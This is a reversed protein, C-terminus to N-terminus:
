YDGPKVYPHSWITVQLLLSKVWADHMKEVEEPSNGKKALFPKLTATVPYVLPALYRMPVIEAAKAGDTVNKKTRHHRLGLEWQYDLWAQDYNASATDLIWQGFRKRVATLYAADPKETKKDVFTALLHPNGGIFGYWVDLVQEVQDALVDLSLRLYKEDEATFLVTKKMLELEALSIGAHPLSNSGHSYGPISTKVPSVEKTKPTPAAAVVLCLAAVLSM